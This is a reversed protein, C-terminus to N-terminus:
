ILQQAKPQSLNAGPFLDMQDSTANGVLDWELLKWKRLGARRVEVGKESWRARYKVEGVKFEYGGGAALSDFDVLMADKKRANRKLVYVGGAEVVERKQNKVPKRLEFHFVGGATEVNRLRCTAIRVPKKRPKKEEKKM